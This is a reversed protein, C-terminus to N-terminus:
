YTNYTHTTARNDYISHSKQNTIKEKKKEQLNEAGPHVKTCHTYKGLANQSITKWWREQYIYGETCCSEAEDKGEEFIKM